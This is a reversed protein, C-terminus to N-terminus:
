TASNGAGTRVVWTLNQHHSGSWTWLVKDGVSITKSAPDFADDKVSVLREGNPGLSEGCAPAPLTLVMILLSRRAFTRM